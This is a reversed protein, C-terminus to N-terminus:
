PWLSPASFLKASPTTHLGVQVHLIKVHNYTRRDGQNTVACLIRYRKSVTVITRGGAFLALCAVERLPCSAEDDLLSTTMSKVSGSVDVDAACIAVCAFISAAFGDNM